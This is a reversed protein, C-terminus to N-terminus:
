PRRMLGDQLEATLADLGLPTQVDAYESYSIGVSQLFRRDDPTETMSDANSKRTKASEETFCDRWCDSLPKVVCVNKRCRPCRWELVLDNTSSLGVGSIQKAVGGCRCTLPLRRYEM